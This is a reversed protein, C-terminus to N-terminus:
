AGRRVFLIRWISVPVVLFERPSPSLRCLVESGSSKPSAFRRFHFSERSPYPGSSISFLHRISRGPYYVILSREFSRQRWQEFIGRKSSSELLRGSITRVTKTRSQFVYGPGGEVQAGPM